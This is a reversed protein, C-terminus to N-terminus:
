PLTSFCPNSNRLNMEDGKAPPMRNPQQGCVALLWHGNGRVVERIPLCWLPNTGPLERHDFGQGGKLKRRAQSSDLSPLPVLTSVSM